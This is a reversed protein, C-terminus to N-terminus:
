AATSGSAELLREVLEAKKGYMPVGLERCLPRLEHMRMARLRRRRTELVEVSGASSQQANHEHLRAGQPRRGVSGQQQAGAGGAAASAKALQANTRAVFAARSALQTQLADRTAGVFDKSTSRTGSAGNSTQSLGNKSDDQQQDAASSTPPTGNGVSAPLVQEWADEQAQQSGASQSGHSESARGTMATSSFTPLDRQSLPNKRPAAVQRKAMPEAYCHNQTLLPRISHMVQGFYTIVGSAGAHARASRGPRM